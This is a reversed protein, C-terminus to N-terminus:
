RKYYAIGTSIEPTILTKQLDFTICLNEDSATQKCAKLKARVKDAKRLHLEKEVSISAKAPQAALL